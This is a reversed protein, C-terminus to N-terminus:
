CGGLFHSEFEKSLHECLGVSVIEEIAASGANTFHYFDSFLSSDKPLQTALDIVFVNESGGVARVADNYLELRKWVVGGNLDGIGVTALNAGTESDIGEGALIPQTILVAEAM